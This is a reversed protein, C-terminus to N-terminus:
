FGNFRRMKSDSLTYCNRDDTDYVNDGSPKEGYKFTLTATAEDYVAYGQEGAWCCLPLIALALITLIKKM